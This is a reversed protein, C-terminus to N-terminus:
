RYEIYTINKNINKTNNAAPHHCLLRIRCSRTKDNILQLQGGAAGWPLLRLGVNPQKLSMEFWTTLARLTVYPM